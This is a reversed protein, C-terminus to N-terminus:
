NNNYLKEAKEPNNKIWEVSYFKGNIEKFLDPRNRKMMNSEEINKPLGKTRELLNRIEEKRQLKAKYEKGTYTIDHAYSEDYWYVMVNTKRGNKMRKVQKRHLFPVNYKKVEEESGTGSMAGLLLWWNHDGNKHGHWHETFIDKTAGVSIGKDVMQETTVATEFSKAGMIDLITLIKDSESMYNFNYTANM